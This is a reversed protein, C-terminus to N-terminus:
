FYWFAPIPDGASLAIGGAAFRANKRPSLMLFKATRLLSSFNELLYQGSPIDKKTHDYGQRTTLIPRWLV